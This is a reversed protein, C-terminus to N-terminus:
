RESRRRAARDGIVYGTDAKAGALALDFQSEDFAYIRYLPEGQDVRDGVKKFVKIGAGKDIPAGATRALRDVRLCDIAEVVGDRAAPVDATLPGLEDRCGSPGQAEIIKEMQKLAAGSDLLDSPAPM